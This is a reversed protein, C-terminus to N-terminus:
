KNFDETLLNEDPKKYLYEFTKCIYEEKEANNNFVDCDEGVIGNLSAEKKCNKVLSM